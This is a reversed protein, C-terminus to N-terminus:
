VCSKDNPANKPNSSRVRSEIDNFTDKYKEWDECFIAKPTLSYKVNDIEKPDMSWLHCYVDLENADIFKKINEKTKDFTRYQGSLVICKKM